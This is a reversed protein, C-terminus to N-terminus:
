VHFFLIDQQEQLKLVFNDAQTMSNSRLHRHCALNGARTCPCTDYKGMCLYYKHARWIALMSQTWAAAIPPLSSNAPNCFCGLHLSELALGMGSDLNCTARGHNLHCPIM